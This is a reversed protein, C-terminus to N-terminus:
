NGNEKMGELVKKVASQDKETFMVNVLIVPKSNVNEGSNITTILFDIKKNLETENKEYQRLSLVDVVHIQPFVKQVKVRLLESTGIGSACVIIVKAERPHQELYKAFYLTLFGIEDDSLDKNYKEEFILNTATKVKNFLDPYESQIDSLLKNSIEIQNNIRNILPKIHGLLEKEIQDTKIDMGIESSIKKILKKTLDKVEDTYGGREDSDSFLRSSILYQLVYFKEIENIRLNLYGSLNEIFKSAIQYLDPNNVITQKESNSLSLDEAEKYVGGQRYRNVLIYIHSFININYPYPIISGLENEIRHIQRHIFRIDYSNSNPFQDELDNLDMTNIKNVSKLIAERIDAETGSAGVLHQKRILALHFSILKNRIDLLDNNIVPDSVYYSGFLSQTSILKPAHFLIKLLVENRREVPSYDSVWKSNKNSKLYEEYNIRYGKGRKSVIVPNKNATNINKIYRIVTRPSIGLEKAMDTSTLYTDKQLLLSLIRNESEGISM